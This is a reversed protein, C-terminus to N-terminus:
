ISNLRVSFFELLNKAGNLGTKFYQLNGFDQKFNFQKKKKQRSNQFSLRIARYFHLLAYEFMGSSYLAKGSPLSVILWRNEARDWVLNIGLCGRASVSDVNIRLAEEADTISEEYHGFMYHCRFLSVPSCGLSCLAGDEQRSRVM